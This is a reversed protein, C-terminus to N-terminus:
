RILTRQLFQQVIWVTMPVLLATIFTRLTATDWPWTHVGQIYERQRIMADVMQRTNGIDKLKGAAQEKNLRNFAAHVREGAESQLKEKKEVLRQHIGLLPLVFVLVACLAFLVLYFLTFGGGYLSATAFNILVFVVFIMGVRSTFASLAYLPTLNYLNIRKVQDYIRSINFLSRIVVFFFASNMPFAFLLVFYTLYITTPSFFLPGVFEKSSPVAILFVSLAIATVIWGTRASLNTFRIKLTNFEADGIDLAPRFKALAQSGANRLYHWAAVIFISWINQVFIIPAFEAAPLTGDLWLLGHQFLVIGLYVLAYFPLFPIPLRNVWDFFRDMWSPQFPIRTSKGKAM